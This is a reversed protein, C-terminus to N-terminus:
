TKIRPGWAFTESLSRKAKALQLNIMEGTTLHGRERQVGGGGRWVGWHKHRSCSHSMKCFLSSSKFFIIHNSLQYHHICCQSRQLRHFLWCHHVSKGKNLPTTPLITTLLTSQSILSGLNLVLRHRM